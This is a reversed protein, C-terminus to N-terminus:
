PFLYNSYTSQGKTGSATHVPTCRFGGRMGSTPTGYKTIYQPAIENPMPSGGYLVKIKTLLVKYNNVTPSIPPTAEIVLTSDPDVIGSAEVAAFGGSSFFDYVAFGDVQAPMVPMPPFLLIVQNINLRTRNVSCFLNFGNPTYTDSFVNLRTYNVVASNWADRNVQPLTKWDAILSAFANQSAIMSASPSVAITGINRLYAGAANHSYVQGGLKGSMNVLLSGFKVKAM